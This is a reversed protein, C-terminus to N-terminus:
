VSVHGFVIKKNQMTATLTPALAISFTGNVKARNKL